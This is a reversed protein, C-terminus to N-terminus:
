ACRRPRIRIRPESIRVRLAAFPAFGVWSFNNEGERDERGNAIKAHSNNPPM